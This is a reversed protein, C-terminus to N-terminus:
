LNVKPRTIVLKSNLCLFNRFSSETRPIPMKFIQHHRKPHRISWCDKYVVHIPNEMRIQIRKYHYKNIVNQNIGLASFFMRLM